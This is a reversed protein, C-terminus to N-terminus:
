GRAPGGTSSCSRRGGRSPARRGSPGFGRACRCSRTAQGARAVLLDALSEGREVLAMLEELAATDLITLLQVRADDFLGPQRERVHVWLPEAVALGETVVLVPWVRRVEERRIDAVSIRGELLDAVRRGLQGLKKDVLKVLDRDLADPDGAVRTARTLRGSVVEMAVLDPGSDVIVDPTRVPARRTGSVEDGFVRGSGAPRPGPHASRVLDLVLRESLTGFFQTFREVQGRRRASGMLRHYIGDGTWSWLARASTLLLRGDALRLFPQQEFPTREWTLAGLELGALQAAYDERREGVVAAIEEERGAMRSQAAFAGAVVARDTFARDADMARSAAILAFGLALQEAASLGYDELLWVDVPVSSPTSILEARSALDVWLAHARAVTHLPARLEYYAASRVIFSLWSGFGPLEDDGLGSAEDLIASPGFLGRTFLNPDPEPGGLAIDQAHLVLLARFAALHREDFVFHSPDARIWAELRRAIPSGEGFFETAVALQADRDNDTAFLAADLWSLMVMSAEFPLAAAYAELDAPTSPPLGLAEEDPGVAILDLGSPPRGAAAFDPPPMLEGPVAVDPAIPEAGAVSSPVILGSPLRTLRPLFIGPLPDNPDPM